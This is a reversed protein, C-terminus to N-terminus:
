GPNRIFVLTPVCVAGSGRVEFAQPLQVHAICLTDGKAENCVRAFAWSAAASPQADLWIFGLGQELESDGQETKPPDRSKKSLFTPM